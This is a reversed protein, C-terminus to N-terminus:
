SRSVGLSGQGVLATIHTGSNGNRGLYLPTLNRVRFWTNLSFVVCVRVSGFLQLEWQALLLVGFHPFSPDGFTWAPKGLEWLASGARWASGSPQGLM